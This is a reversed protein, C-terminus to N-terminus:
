KGACLARAPFKASRICQLKRFSTEAASGNEAHARNSLGPWSCRATIQVYISAYKGPLRFQFLADGRFNGGFMAVRAM